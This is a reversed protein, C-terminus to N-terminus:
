AVRNNDREKLAFYMKDRIAHGNTWLTEVGPQTIAGMCTYSALSM